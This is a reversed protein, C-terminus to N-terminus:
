TIRVAVNLYPIWITVAWLLANVFVPVVYKLAKQISNTIISSVTLEM